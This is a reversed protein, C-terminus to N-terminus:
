LDQNIKIKIQLSNTESKFETNQNLERNSKHM